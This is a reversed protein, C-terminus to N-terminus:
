NLRQQLGNSFRVMWFSDILGGSAFLQLNFTDTFMTGDRLPRSTFEGLTLGPTLSLILTLPLTTATLFWMPFTFRTGGFHSEPLVHCSVLQGRTIYGDLSTSNNSKNLLCYGELERKEGGRGENGSDSAAMCSQATFFFYGMIPPLPPLSPPPPNCPMQRNTLVHCYCRTLNLHEILPASSHGALNLTTIVPPVATWLQQFAGGRRLLGESMWAQM